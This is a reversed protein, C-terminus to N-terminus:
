MPGNQEAPNSWLTSWVSSGNIYFVSDNHIIGRHRSDRWADHKVAIHGVQDISASSASDKSNIEFLYLRDEHSYGSEENYFGLNAPVLFRDQTDSVVQYTFARRNYRAESYSWNLSDLSIIDDETGLIVTGLSYPSSLIEVNFLELKTFGNEDEGLGMLLNNNIPHLFDSFGTVELEGAIFPDTPTSLDLVYLPDIREFTVLYLKEGLFRVGYLEENPKGIAQTREGNPLTAVLELKFQQPNLKLVSLKHDIWDDSNNNYETTVLRLYGEHENIRFDNNGSLYLSGDAVGSGLYTLAESLEYSHVLTRSSFNSYDIQALYIANESVYIGNTPELYCTTNVVTQAKLNIAILLTLTPHGTAQPALENNKDTVLCESAEVLLSEDGNVKIKPLIDEISLNDLLTENQATETEVPFYNLGDINPTHRAVLYLTDGKKRSNVFGGEFEINMQLTPATVDGIDYVDLITTQSQWSSVSAFEDGYIGWWGSSSIAVLQDGHAYLGEVSYSEDLEIAGVELATADDPDTAVIRIAHDEKSTITTAESQEAEDIEPISAIDDFVFCCDMGRSPATFIYNGDYKVVDHEDINAELTYTSTFGTATSDLEVSSALSIDESRALNSEITNNFGSKVSALLENDNAIPILLANSETDPDVIPNPKSTNSNGGGGCAVLLLPLVHIFYKIIKIKM